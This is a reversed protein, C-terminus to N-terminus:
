VLGNILYMERIRAEHGTLNAGYPLVPMTILDFRIAVFM